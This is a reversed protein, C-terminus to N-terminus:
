RMLTDVCVLKQTHHATLQCSKAWKERSKWIADLHCGSPKADIKGKGDSFIVGWSSSVLEGSAFKRSKGWIQFLRRVYGQYLLERLFESCRTESIESPKRLTLWAINPETWSRARDKHRWAQCKGLFTELERNRITHCHFIRSSSHVLLLYRLYSQIHSQLM